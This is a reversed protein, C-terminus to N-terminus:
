QSKLLGVAQALTITQSKRLKLTKSLAPRDILARICTALGESAAFIYVNEAIATADCYKCTERFAVLYNQMAKPLKPSIVMRSADAVYVLSIPANAVYDQTGSMARFDGSAVPKLTNGSADYLYAGTSMVVYIDIEQWDMGSPATRMGTGGGLRKADPRNIGWAAWLLNSLTQVPVEDSAFERTSARAAFAQMVPKGGQMDPAPLSIPQLEQAIAAGAVLLIIVSLVLSRSIHSM